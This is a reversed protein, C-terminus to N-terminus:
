KKSLSDVHSVYIEYLGENLIFDDYVFDKMAQYLEAAYGGTVVKTAQMGLEAEIKVALGEVMAIAGYLLGSQMSTITDNGIVKAPVEIKIAPLQPIFRTLAESSIGIGPSIIGGKFEGQSDLVSIKTASGLDALIIPLPYKAMAGVSTAIFDAGLETPDVLKVVFEPVTKTNINLGKIKLESEIIEIIDATISPVVSGICYATLEIKQNLPLLDHRVWNRYFESVNEKVTVFRQQFVRQKQNDYVAVVINSNGVDITLLM